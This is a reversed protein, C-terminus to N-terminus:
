YKCFPVVIVFPPTKIVERRKEGYSPIRWKYTGVLPIKVTDNVIILVIEKIFSPMSEPQLLDNPNKVKFLTTFTEGLWYPNSIQNVNKVLIHQSFKKNKSLETSKSGIVVSIPVSSRNLIELNFFASDDSQYVFDKALLEAYIGLCDFILQNCLTIKEKKFDSNPLKELENRIEILESLNNEPENFDFSEVLGKFRIEFNKSILNSWTRTNKEFFSTKLKEGKLHQFYETRSGREVIAGFGQCKHQSRAITGIENYSKGLYSNYGGIDVVLYDENNKAKSPLDKFWWVSSNWYVSTTKWTGFEKAQEPLFNADAAKEFAEIALMASATHHGHGGRKDPPFRTVIVDPRFKRIMLVVDSLIEEKGWKEFSEEASKSYGFDVARTFYQNAGDYSRAALLEQTRLVGLQESLENGILNQGGDGRTLSLYATEAHEGLSFWALARTNEDDPHAAIYLVRKLSHLKQLGVYIESAPKNSSASLTSIVLLLSIIKKM